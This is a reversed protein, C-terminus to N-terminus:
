NRDGQIEEVLKKQVEKVSALAKEGAEKDGPKFRSFVINSGNIQLGSIGEEMSIFPLVTVVNKPNIFLDEVFM